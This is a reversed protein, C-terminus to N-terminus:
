CLGIPVDENCSLVMALMAEPVFLHVLKNRYHALKLHVAGKLMVKEMERLNSAGGVSGKGGGIQPECVKVREGEEVCSSLLQLSSNTVARTDTCAM